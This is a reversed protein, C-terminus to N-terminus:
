LLVQTFLGPALVDVPLRQRAGLAWGPAPVANGAAWARSPHQAMTRSDRHRQQEGAMGTGDWLLVIGADGELHPSLWPSLMWPLHHKLQASLVAASGSQANGEFNLSRGSLSM